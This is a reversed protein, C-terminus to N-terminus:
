VRDDWLCDNRVEPERLLCEVDKPPNLGLSSAREWRALRTTGLCPGYAMNMDFQRLMEENEHYDDTLDLSGHSILAAPQVVDFRLTASHNPSSKRGKPNAIGASKKRQRFFGKVNGRGGRTSSAM